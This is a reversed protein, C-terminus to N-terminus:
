AIRVLLLLFVLFRDFGVAFCNREVTVIEISNTTKCFIQHVIALGVGRELLIFDNGIRVRFIRLRVHANCLDVASAAFEIQCQFIQFFRLRHHGIRNIDGVIQRPYVLRLSAVVIGSLNQM